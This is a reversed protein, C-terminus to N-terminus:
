QFANKNKKLNLTHSASVSASPKQFRFFILKQHLINLKALSKSVSAYRDPLKWKVEGSSGSAERDDM